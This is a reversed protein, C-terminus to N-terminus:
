CNNRIYTKTLNFFLTTFYIKSNPTWNKPNKSNMRRRRRYIRRFESWDGGVFGVPRVEEKESAKGAFMLRWWWVWRFGVSVVAFCSWCCGSGNGGNGAFYGVGFLLELPSVTMGKEGGCRLDPRYVVLKWGEFFSVVCRFGNVRFVGVGDCVVGGGKGMEEGSVVLELWLLRVFDSWCCVWALGGSRWGSSVFGVVVLAAAFM